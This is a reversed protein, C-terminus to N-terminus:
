ETEGEEACLECGTEPQEEHAHDPCMKRVTLEDEEDYRELIATRAEAESWLQREVCGEDSFLGYEDM